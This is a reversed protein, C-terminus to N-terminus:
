ASRGFPASAHFVAALDAVPINIIKGAKGVYFGFLVKQFQDAFVVGLPVLALLCAMLAHFVVAFQNFFVLNLQDFLGTIPIFLGKSYIFKSDTSM